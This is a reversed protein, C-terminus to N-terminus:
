TAAHSSGSKVKILFDNENRGLAKLLAALCEGFDKASRNLHIYVTTGQWDVQTCPAMETGDAHCSSSNLFCRNGTRLGRIPLDPLTDHLALWSVVATAVGRWSTVAAVQDDPFRVAIPQSFPKAARRIPVYDVEQAPQSVTLPGTSIEGQPDKPLASPKSLLMRFYSAVETRQLTQLHYKSRLTNTISRVLDSNELILQAGLTAQLQVNSVFSELGDSVISVKSLAVLMRELHEPNTLDARVVLRDKAAIQFEKDDYLRWERGNTLVVWRKGRAHAYTIAQVAEKEGDLPHTWHKAELYWTHDTRPLITYDPISGPPNHDQPLVEDHSYGMAHLLPDIVSRCTAAEN